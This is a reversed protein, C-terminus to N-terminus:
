TLYLLGIFLVTKAESSIKEPIWLQNILSFTELRKRSAITWTCSKMENKLVIHGFSLPKWWCCRWVDYYKNGRLMEAFNQHLFTCCCRPWTIFSALWDCSSNTCMKPSTGENTVNVSTKESFDWLKRAMFNSPIQQPFSKGVKIKLTWYSNLWM